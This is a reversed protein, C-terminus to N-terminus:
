HRLVQVRDNGRDGVYINGQRDAAIGIPHNFQGPAQGQRGYVALFHGRLDYEQVRNNEGDVIFLHGRGDVTLGTPNHFRYPGTGQRGWIRLLRGTPTYKQINNHRVDAVWINGQGDLCIGEPDVGGSNRTYGQLFWQRMPRFGHGVPPLVSVQGFPTLGYIRGRGGVAVADVFTNTTRALLVGSPSRKDLETRPLNPVYANGARDTAITSPHEFAFSGAPKGTPSYRDISSEIGDAVFV